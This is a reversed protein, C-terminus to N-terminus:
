SYHNINKLILNYIFILFLMFLIIYLTNDLKIYIASYISGIILGAFVQKLSHMKSLLRQLMTLFIIIFVFYISIYKKYWLLLSVVTATETHGSPMGYCKYSDDNKCEIKPRKDNYFEHKFINKELPNLVIYHYLGILIILLLFIHNYKM